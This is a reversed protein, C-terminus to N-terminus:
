RPHRNVVRRAEDGWSYGFLRERNYVTEFGTWSVSLVGSVLRPTLQQAEPFRALAAEVARRLPEAAAAADAVSIRSRRDIIVYRADDGDAVITVPNISLGGTSTPQADLVYAVYDEWTQDPMYRAMTREFQQPSLWGLMVFTCPEDAFRSPNRPQVGSTVNYFERELRLIFYDDQRGFYTRLPGLHQGVSYIRCEPPSLEVLRAAEAVFPGKSRALERISFSNLAGLAGIVAVLAAVAVRWGLPSRIGRIADYVVFAVIFLFAVASHIYFKHVTPDWWTFVLFWVACLVIFYGREAFHDRKHWIAVVNWAVSVVLIAGVIAALPAQFWPYDLGFSYAPPWLALAEIQNWAGQAIAFATWNRVTGWDTLPRNTIELLWVFFGPFSPADQSWLYAGIFCAAVIGGAILSTVLWQWFGHRRETILFYIFFPIFLLVNVIHYMTAMAWFLAIGSLQLTSRTGSRGTLLLCSAAMSAGVGAAYVEAQTAFIWFGHSVLVVTALALAGALGFLRKGMVFVSVIAIGAWLMSHLTAACTPGCSSIPALLNYLFSITPVHMLHPPYLRMDHLGVQSATFTYNVANGSMEQPQSIYLFAMTGLFVCLAQIIDGLQISGLESVRGTHNFAESRM